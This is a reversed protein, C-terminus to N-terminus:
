NVSPTAASPLRYKGKSVLKLRDCDVQNRVWRFFTARSLHIGFDAVERMLDLTTYVRNPDLTPLFEKLMEEAFDGTQQQELRGKSNFAYTMEEAPLNRPLVLVSRVNSTPDDNDPPEILIITESFAAWAVSGLIRQRPNLVREGERAKTAHVYGFITIDERSCTRSAEILFEAVCAYDNTKGKSVFHLLPDIWLIRCDTIHKRVLSVVGQISTVGPHDILSLTPPRQTPKIRELTRNVSASSRDCAVYCMPVLQADRGLVPKASLWDDILQFVFTTKGAGSPGAILHVERAPFIQDVVFPLRSSSNDDQM